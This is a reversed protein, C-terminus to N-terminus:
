DNIYPKDTTKYIDVINSYDEIRKVTDTENIINKKM